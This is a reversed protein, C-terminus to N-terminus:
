WQWNFLSFRIYVSTIHMIVISNIICTYFNFKLNLNQVIIIQGFSVAYVNDTYFLNICFCICVLRVSRAKKVWGFHCFLSERAFWLWISSSSLWQFLEKAVKYIHVHKQTHTHIYLLYNFTRHLALSTYM